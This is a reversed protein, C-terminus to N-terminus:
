LSSGPVSDVRDSHASFVLGSPVPPWLQLDLESYQPIACPLGSIGTEGATSVQTALLVCGAAARITANEPQLPASVPQEVATSWPMKLLETATLDRLQQLTRCRAPASLLQWEGDSTGIALCPQDSNLGALELADILAFSENGVFQCLLGPIHEAASRLQPGTFAPGDFSHIRPLFCTSLNEAPLLCALRRAAPQEVGGSEGASRLTSLLTASAQFAAAGDFLSLHLHDLRQAIAAIAAPETVTWLRHRIGSDLWCETPTIPRTLRQLLEELSEDTAMSDEAFLCVPAFDARCTTQLQLLRAIEQPSSPQTAAANHPQGLPNELPLLGLLGWRAATEGKWPTLTQLVYWAAAHDRIVIGERRWLRFFDDARRAPAMIGADDPEPRNHTLRVTNCPHLRYLEDQQCPMLASGAPVIVDALAGVQSLDYRWGCFPLFQVM